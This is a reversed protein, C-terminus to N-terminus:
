NTYRLTDAYNVGNMTGTLQVLRGNGSTLPLFDCAPSCTQNGNTDIGATVTATFAGLAGTNTGSGFYFGNINAGSTPYSQIQLNRLPVSLDNTGSVTDSWAVPVSAIAGALSGSPSLFSSVTSDSLTRWHVLPGISADQVAGTNVVQSTGLTSGTSDFLTVTYTSYMPITAGTIHSSSSAFYGARTVGPVYQIDSSTLPTWSWRFINTDTSTTTPSVPAATLLRGTFQLQSTGAANPVVMRINDPLGPGTILASYVSANPTVNLPITVGLGAEYRSATSNATDLYQRRLLWSSINIDFTQQNGVIDWAATGGSPLTIASGLKQVTEILFSKTGDSRTYRLRVLAQSGGSAYALTEPADFSSITNAIDPHRTAFSSYGNSKYRTDIAAACSANSSSATGDAVCAQLLAPLFSLYDGATPPPTLTGLNASTSASTLVFAISPSATSVISLGDATTQIQIADIMADAQTHDAVFATSIPDFNAPLQYNTLLSALVVNLKAQAASVSASSVASLNALQSLDEPNGSAVLLAALASTLPTINAVAIPATKVATPVTALVSVIPATTGSPDVAILYFPPKLNTIDILYTGSTNSTVSPVATGASDTLAVSAGALASGTAVTGTLQTAPLQAAATVGAAGDGKSDSGGCSALLSTGLLAICASSVLTLRTKM